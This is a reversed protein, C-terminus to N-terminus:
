DSYTQIYKEADGIKVAIKGSQTGSSNAADYPASAPIELLNTALGAGPGDIGYIIADAKGTDNQGTNNLHIWDVRGNLTTDAHAFNKGLVLLAANGTLTLDKSGDGLGLWAARMNPITRGSRQALVVSNAHIGVTAEIACLQGINLDANDYQGWAVAQFATVGAADTETTPSSLCDVLMLSRESDTSTLQGRIEVLENGAFAVPVDSKGITLAQGNAFLGTLMVGGATFTGSLSIGATTCDGIIIGTAQTGDINIAVTNYTGGMDIGIATVTSSLDIGGTVAIAGASIGGFNLNGNITFDGEVELARAHCVGSHFGYKRNVM